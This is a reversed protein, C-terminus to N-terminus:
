LTVPGRFGVVEGFFNSLYVEDLEEEGTGSVWAGWFVGLLETKRRVKLGSGFRGIFL